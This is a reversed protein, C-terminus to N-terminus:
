GTVSAGLSPHSCNLMIKPGTCLRLLVWDTLGTECNFHIIENHCFDMIPNLIEKM